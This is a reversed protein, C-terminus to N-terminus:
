GLGSALRLWATLALLLLLEALAPHIRTVRSSEGARPLSGTRRPNGVSALTSV